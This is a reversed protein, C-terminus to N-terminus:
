NVKDIKDNLKLNTQSRMEELVNKFVDMDKKVVDRILSEQLDNEISRAQELVEMGKQTLMLIKRRRDDKDEMKTVFYNYELHNLHRMVASKDKHLLKSLDELILKEKNVLINLIIFQALNLEIGKQQFADELLIMISRMTRGITCFLSHNVNCNM